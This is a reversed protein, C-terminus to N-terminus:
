MNTEASGARQHSRNGAPKRADILWAIRVGRRDNRIERLPDVVIGAATIRAVDEASRAVRLMQEQRAAVGSANAWGAEASRRVDAPWYRDRLAWLRLFENSYFLAADDPPPRVSLRRALEAAAAL